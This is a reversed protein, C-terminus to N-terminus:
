FQADYKHNELLNLPFAVKKYATNTAGIIVGNFVGALSGFYIKTGFFTVLSFSIFFLSVFFNLIRFM